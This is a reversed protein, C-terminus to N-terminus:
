MLRAYVRRGIEHGSGIGSEKRGCTSFLPSLFVATECPDRVTKVRANKFYLSNM